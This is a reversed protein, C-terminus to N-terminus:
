MGTPRHWAFLDQRLRKLDAAHGPDRALNHLEEPDQSLDYLEDTDHTWYTYKLNGDRIMSKAQKNNLSFEAYVPGHPK